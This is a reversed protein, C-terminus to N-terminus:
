FTDGGREHCLSSKIEAEKERDELAHILNELTGAIVVGDGESSSVIPVSDCKDKFAWTLPGSCTM